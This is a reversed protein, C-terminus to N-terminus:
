QGSATLTPFRMTVPMGQRLDPGPRNIVIRLRYVLDTRLEPTEVSKPTFEAVPSIFGITGEYPKDPLTDSAVSVKMGPHIRGLNPEAVYSRVWVPETLSLVFVTDAPSVIAGNERVRSLIVGDNPAHLETDDLSTRAAALTAQAAKLQADAAAIDEVRSGEQLLKLAENASDARAAAMARAATAQDLSAESITGQPRLQRARDYALNANALDALSEDYAARAQAIETPRPGAKLKDLTAQLAAVNAESSRVAFEYPAADLKALVTGTKIVDGEDAHLEALRGSVRFGLSVQRIDINGYLVFEHRADPWWGLKEPLGYWWAAAGVVVLLLIVLSLIRKM